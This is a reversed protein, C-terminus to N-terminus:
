RQRPTRTLVIGPRSLQGCPNDVFLSFKGLAPISCEFSRERSRRGIVTFINLRWGGAVDITQINYRPRLPMPKRVSQKEGCPPITTPPPTFNTKADVTTKATPVQPTPIIPNIAASIPPKPLAKPITTSPPPPVNASSAPTTGVPTGSGSAAPATTLQLTPVPAAPVPQNNIPPPPLVAGNANQGSSAGANGANPVTYQPATTPYAPPPLSSPLELPAVPKQDKNLQAAALTTQPQQQPQIVTNESSTANAGTALYRGSVYPTEATKVVSPNPQVDPDAQLETMSLKIKRWPYPQLAISMKSWTAPFSLNIGPYKQLLQRLKQADGPELQKCLENVSEANGLEYKAALKSGTKGYNYKVKLGAFFDKVEEIRAKTHVHDIYCEEVGDPPSHDTYKEPEVKANNVSQSLIRSGTVHDDNRRGSWPKTPRNIARSSQSLLQTNRAKEDAKQVDPDRFKVRFSATRKRQERRKNAAGIMGNCSQTLLGDNNAPLTDQNDPDGTAGSDDLKREQENNGRGALDNNQKDDEPFLRMRVCNNIRGLEPTQTPDVRKGELALAGVSSTLVNSLAYRPDISDGTSTSQTLRSYHKDTTLHTPSQPTTPALLSLSSSLDKTSTSPPTGSSTSSSSTEAPNANATQDPVNNNSSSLLVPFPPFPNNGGYTDTLSTKKANDGDPPALNNTNTNNNPLTNDSM